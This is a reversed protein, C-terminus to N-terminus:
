PSRGGCTKGLALPAADNYFCLGLRFEPGTLPRCISSAVPQLGAVLPSAVANRNFNTKSKSGAYRTGRLAPSFSGIGKPNGPWPRLRRAPTQGHRPLCPVPTAGTLDPTAGSKPRLSFNRGRVDTLRFQDRFTEPAVGSVVPGLGTGGLIKLL